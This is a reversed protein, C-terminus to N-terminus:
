LSSHRWQDAIALWSGDDPDAWAGQPTIEIDFQV